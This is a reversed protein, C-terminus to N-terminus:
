KDWCREMWHLCIVWNKDVPLLVIIYAANKWGILESEFSIPIWKKKNLKWDSQRFHVFSSLEEQKCPQQKLVTSGM